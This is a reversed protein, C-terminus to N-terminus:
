RRLYANTDPHFLCVLLAASVVLSVATLVVFATPLDRNLGIAATFGAFVVVAAMSWRAWDHGTRFFVVLVWGLLALVVFLTIAVPVFAPPTLEPSKGERWSAVLEDRLVVTLLATLGSLGVVAWLLWVAARVSTPVERTARDRRDSGPADTEEM